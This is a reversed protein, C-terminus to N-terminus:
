YAGIEELRDDDIGFHHAVEHHVTRTVEEELEELTDCVEEHPMQFIRITNPLVAPVDLMSDTLSSGEFLGFLDEDDPVANVAYDHESPEDEIVIQLNEVRARLEEPVELWAKEAMLRFKERTVEIMSGGHVASRGSCTSRRTRSSSAPM